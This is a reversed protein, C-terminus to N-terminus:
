NSQLAKEECKGEIYLTDVSVTGVGAQIYLPSLCRGRSSACSRFVM